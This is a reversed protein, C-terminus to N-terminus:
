PMDWRSSCDMHCPQGAPAQCDPCPELCAGALQQVQAAEVDLAIRADDWASGQAAAPHVPIAALAVAWDDQRRRATDLYFHLAAVESGVNVTEPTM